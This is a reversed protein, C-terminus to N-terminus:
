LTYFPGSRGSIYLDIKLPSPDVKMQAFYKSKMYGVRRKLLLKHLQFKCDQESRLVSAQGPDAKIQVDEAIKWDTGAEGEGKAM